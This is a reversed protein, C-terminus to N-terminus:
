RLRHKGGVVQEPFWVGGRRLPPAPCVTQGPPFPPCAPPPWPPCVTQGPPYPCTCTVQGCPCQACSIAFFLALSAARLM